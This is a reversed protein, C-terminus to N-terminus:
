AVRRVYAITEPTFPIQPVEFDRYFATPDCTNGEVLMALQEPTIPLLGVRGLTNVLVQIPALPVHLKPRPKGRLARAIIDLIEDYSLPGPGAVCYTQGHAAERTLAQAFASAVVDVAVPQLQYRGDGFVPLVPFPRVLRRALQTVFEMPAGQPDGFIVSPRFITWHAFGARRVIEEAEWKSTQYATIGDPRAGNASMHIFRAIGAQQAAEVIHLTGRRHVADFTIGQRPKEAIIGVLHVVAECGELTGAFTEPRLLDGAVKEVGEDEVPLPRDPQRVLCRVQHGATRLARLVYRGVFGTAGTLYVKM